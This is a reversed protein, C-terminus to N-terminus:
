VDIGVVDLLSALRVAGDVHTVFCAVVLVDTAELDAQVGRWALLCHLPLVDALGRRDVLFLEDVDDDSRVRGRLRLEHGGRHGERLSAAEHVADGRLAPVLRRRDLNPRHVVLDVLAATHRDVEGGEGDRLAVLGIVVPRICRRVHVDGDARVGGRRAAGAVAGRLQAVAGVGSKSAGGAGGGVLTGLLALGRAYGGAVGEDGVRGRARRVGPTVRGREARLLVGRVAVRDAGDM